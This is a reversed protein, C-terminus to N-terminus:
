TELKVNRENLSHRAYTSTLVNLFCFPPQERISFLCSSDRIKCLSLRFYKVNTNMLIHVINIDDSIVDNM